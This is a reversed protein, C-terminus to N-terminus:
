RLSALRAAATEAFVLSENAILAGLAEAKKCVAERDRCYRPLAALRQVLAAHDVSFTANPLDISSYPVLCAVLSLWFVSRLLFM